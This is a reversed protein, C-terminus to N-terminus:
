MTPHSVPRSPRSIAKGANISWASPLPLARDNASDITSVRVAAAVMTNAQASRSRLSRVRFCPKRSVLLAQTAKVAKPVRGSISPAGPSLKVSAKKSVIDAIVVVPAVTIAPSSVMGRPTRSQRPRSVQVPPMPTTRSAIMMSGTSLIPPMCSSRVESKLVMPLIM